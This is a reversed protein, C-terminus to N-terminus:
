FGFGREPDVCASIMVDHFMRLKYYPRVGERPTDNKTHTLKIFTLTNRDSKSHFWTIRKNIFHMIQINHLCTLM